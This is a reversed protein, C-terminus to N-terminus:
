EAAVKDATADVKGIEVGEKLVVFVDMDFDLIARTGTVVIRSLSLSGALPGLISTLLIFQVHHSIARCCM